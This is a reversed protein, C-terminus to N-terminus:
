NSHIFTITFAIPRQRICGKLMFLNRPQWNLTSDCKSIPKTSHLRVKLHLTAKIPFSIAYGFLSVQNPYYNVDFSSLCLTAHNHLGGWMWVVAFLASYDGHDSHPHWTFNQSRTLFESQGIAFLAFMLAHQTNIYNLFAVQVSFALPILMEKWALNLDITCKSGDVWIMFRHM